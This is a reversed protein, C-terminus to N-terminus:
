KLSKPTSLYFHGWRWVDRYYWMLSLAPPPSSGTGWGAHIQIQMIVISLKPQDAGLFLHTPSHRTLLILTATCITLPTGSRRRHNSFFFFFDQSLMKILGCCSSKEQGRRMELYIINSSCIWQGERINLMIQLAKISMLSFNPEYQDYMYRHHIEQGSKTPAWFCGLDLNRKVTWSEGM